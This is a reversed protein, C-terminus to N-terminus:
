RFFSSYIFHRATFTNASFMTQEAPLTLFSFGHQVVSLKTGGCLKCEYELEVDPNLDRSTGTTRCYHCKHKIDNKCSWIRRGTNWNLSMLRFLMLLFLLLLELTPM